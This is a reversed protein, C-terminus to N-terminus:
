SRVMVPEGIVARVRHVKGDERLPIAGAEVAVGDLEAATVGRCRRGPNEVSIEYRTSGFRV